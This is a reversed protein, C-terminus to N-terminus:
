PRRRTGHCRLARRANAHGQEAAWLMELRSAGIALILRAPDLFEQLGTPALTGLEEKGGIWLIPGRFDALAALIAFMDAADGTAEHVRGFALEVTDALPLAGHVPRYTKRPPM